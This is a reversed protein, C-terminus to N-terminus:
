LKADILEGLAEGIGSDGAALGLTFAIENGTREVGISNGDVVQLSLKTIEMLAERGMKDALLADFMPQLGSIASAVTFRAEASDGFSGWDLVLAGKWQNAIAEQVNKFARGSQLRSPATEMAARYATLLHLPRATATLEKDPAIAITQGNLYLSMSTWGGWTSRSSMINYESGGKSYTFNQGMGSHVTTYRKVKGDIGASYAAAGTIKLLVDFLGSSNKAAFIGMEVTAGQGTFVTGYPNMEDQSM